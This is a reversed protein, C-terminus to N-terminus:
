KNEVSAPKVAKNKQPAIAKQEPEPKVEPAPEAKPEAKKTLGLKEALSLPMDAGAAVLVFRGSEDGEPVAKGDATLNYGQEVTFREGSKNHMQELIENVVM